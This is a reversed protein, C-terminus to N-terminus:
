TLGSGAARSGGSRGPCAPAWTPPGWLGVGARGRGVAESGARRRVGGQGLLQPLSYIPGGSETLALLNCETIGFYIGLNLPCSNFHGEM